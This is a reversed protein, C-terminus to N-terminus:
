ILKRYVQEQQYYNLEEMRGHASFNLPAMLNVAKAGVAAAEAEVYELMLKFLGQQRVAPHTYINQVTWESHNKSFLQAGIIVVMYGVTVDGNMAVYGKLKGMDELAQVTAFDVDLWDWMAEPVHEEWHAKAFSLWEKELGRTSVQTITLRM